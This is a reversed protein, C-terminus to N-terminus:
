AAGDADLVHVCDHAHSGDPAPAPRHLVAHTPRLRLLGGGESPAGEPATAAAEADVLLTYGDLLASSPQRGPDRQADDAVPPSVITVASRAHANRVSTAGVRVVLADGEWSFPAAVCHPRGDAGVTLLYGSNARRGLEAELDELRVQVSM